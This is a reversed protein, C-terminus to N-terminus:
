EKNRKFLWGIFKFPATIIFWFVNQILPLIGTIQLFWLLLFLAFIAIILKLWNFKPPPSTIDSAIDIPDAVVPIVMYKGDKNFTLEIIDFNFFLTQQAVYTDDRGDVNCAYYDTNAFRFLIVKNGKLTESVYYEKFDDVHDEFIFLNDSVISKDNVLDKAKVEYIPSITYNGSTSPWSFGFDWLKDWWSHNSDYSKLEFTDGLDIIKDNYGIQRGVDVSNEFLDKSIQKGKKNELDDLYGHGLDNSYNYIYDLLKVGAVNGAVTDSYFFSLIKDISDLEFDKDVSSNFVIPLITSVKDIYNFWAGFGPEESPLNYAWDYYSSGSTGTGSYSGDYIKLNFPINEDYYGNDTEAIEVGTYQKMTNYFDTNSTIAMMKTKYEFWEARIKQLNGYENFISEPISFYVTNITDYHNAGNSNVRDTRYFTSNLDLEITELEEIDYSKLTSEATEDAGYGKAFGSFKYTGGVEYDTVNVNGVTMLEIGSIDYRRENSNVRQLITKGDDSVHDIVKYKYFLSDYAGTSKSCFKLDFKEYKIPNGDSSYEVALQVANAKNTTDINQGTPNYLYLYLGYNSQKNKYYSYCYEVVQILKVRQFGLDIFPYKLIDFDSSSKLDDLVNTKDFDVVSDEARVTTPCFISLVTSMTVFFIIIFTLIKNKMLKM